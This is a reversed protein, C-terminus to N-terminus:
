PCISMQNRSQTEKREKDRKEMEVRPSPVFIELHDRYVTYVMKSKSWVAEFFPFNRTRTTKRKERRKGLYSVVGLFLSFEGFILVILAVGIAVLYKM